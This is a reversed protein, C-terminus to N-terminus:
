KFKRIIPKRSEEALQQNEFNIGTGTHPSDSAFKKDFCNTFWQFLDANIPLMNQTKLLILHKIVYYKIQLQEKFDGSAM